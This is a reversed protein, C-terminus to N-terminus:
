KGADTKWVNELYYDFYWNNVSANEKIDKLM